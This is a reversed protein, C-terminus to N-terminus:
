GSASVGGRVDCLAEDVAEEFVRVHRLVVTVIIGCENDFTAMAM